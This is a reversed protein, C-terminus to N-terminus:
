AEVGYKAVKSWQKGLKKRYAIVGLLDALAWGIPISWWIGRAGLAIESLVYALIVRTGLSVITLIISMNLMGIGRYLGYFMFLFGILVYFISVVSIYEVGLAIVEVESKDVFLLMIYRSFILILTSTVLCFIIITKITSKVGEKIRDLKEAGKNQAVYTAFANGFDQVPMYAISDIKVGAAFAAMVTVGFKNVLGQVM